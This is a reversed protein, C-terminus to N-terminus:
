RSNIYTSHSEELNSDEVQDTVIIWCKVLVHPFKDDFNRKLEYKELKGAFLFDSVKDEGKIRVRWKHEELVGYKNMRARKLLNGLFEQEDLNMKVEFFVTLDPITEHSITHSGYKIEVVSPPTDCRMNDIVIFDDSTPDSPTRPELHLRILTASHVCDKFEKIKEIGSAVIDVDDGFSLHSAHGGYQGM